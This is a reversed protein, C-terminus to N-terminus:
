PPPLVGVLRSVLSALDGDLPGDGELLQEIEHALVSGDPFGFMGLSGALKHAEAGADRRMEIELRGAQLAAAAAQLVAVRAMIRPRSEIWAAAAAAAMRERRGEDDNM